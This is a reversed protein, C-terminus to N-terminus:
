NQSQDKGLIVLVDANTTKEETPIKSITQVGLVQSLQQIAEKNNTKGTDVIITKEYDKKGADIAETVKFLANTELRQKITNALGSKSTGNRIEIMLPSEHIVQPEPTPTPAQGILPGVNVLVNRKPSYIIAKAAKPYVVLYDGNQADQYFKQEKALLEKDKIVAVVPEEGVPLIMHRGIKALLEKTEQTKKAEESQGIIVKKVSQPLPVKQGLPTFKLVAGVFVLLIFLGILRKTRESLIIKTITVM